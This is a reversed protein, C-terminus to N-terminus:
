TTITVEWAWSLGAVTYGGSAVLSQFEFIDGSSIEPLAIELIRRGSRDSLRKVSSSPCLKNEKRILSWAQLSITDVGLFSGWQGQPSKGSVGEYESSSTSKGLLSDTITLLQEEQSNSRCWIFADFPFSLPSSCTEENESHNKFAIVLNEATLKEGIWEPEDNTFGCWCGSFRSLLVGFLM